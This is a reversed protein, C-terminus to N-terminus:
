DQAREIIHATPLERARQDEVVRQWGAPWGVRVGGGVHVRAGGRRCVHVCVGRQQRWKDGPHMVSKESGVTEKCKSQELDNIYAM